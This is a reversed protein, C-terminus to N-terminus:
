VHARGIEGCGGIVTSGGGGTISMGCATSLINTGGGRYSTNQIHGNSYSTAAGGSSFYAGGGGGATV